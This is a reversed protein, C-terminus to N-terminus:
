KEHHQLLYKHDINKYFCPLTTHMSFHRCLSFFFTSNPRQPAQSLVAWWPHSGERGARGGQHCKAAQDWGCTRITGPFGAWQIMVFNTRWCVTNRNETKVSTWCLNWPLDNKWFVHSMNLSEGDTGLFDRLPHERVDSNDPVQHVGLILLILLYSNM